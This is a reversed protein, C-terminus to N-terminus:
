SQENRMATTMMEAFSHRNGTRDRLALATPLYIFSGSRVIGLATRGPPSALLRTAAGDGRREVDSSPRSRSSRRSKATPFRRRHLVEFARWHCLDRLRNSFPRGELRSETFRNRWRDRALTLM